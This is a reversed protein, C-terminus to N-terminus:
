HTGPGHEQRHSLLKHYRRTALSELWMRLVRGLSRLRHGANVGNGSLFLAKTLQSVGLRIHMLALEYEIELRRGHLQSLAMPETVDTILHDFLVLLSQAGEVKDWSISQPHYSYEFVVDEVFDIPYLLSIQLWKHYDAKLRTELFPGLKEFCPRRVLVSSQPIFNAHILKPFVWGRCPTVGQFITLPLDHVPNPRRDVVMGNGFVLGIDSNGDLLQVQLKLRLSRWIDDSDLFAIYEGRVHRLALNRASYAGRHPQSLVRIATGFEDLVQRTKDTSGDDVVIIEFDQYTQNLVSQVANAVMSERNFVPIIVSVRPCVDM